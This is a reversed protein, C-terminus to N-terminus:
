LLYFSKKELPTLSSVDTPRVVPKGPVAGENLQTFETIMAVSTAQKYKKSGKNTSMQTFIVDTAMQM